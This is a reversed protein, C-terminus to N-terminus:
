RTGKSRLMQLPTRCLLRLDLGLSWGRAYSVDMELAEAFTSHARAAVQWLGTLGAPVLFREFHHPAFSETEYGLCPRPGVLSMDGRLVNVLQPLEDLSTRRLWRGVRTIADDRELKYLGNDNAEAATDMIQRIYERHPADDTDARMTRFKLATFERMGLGLRTQRFFVPGPSDLKTLLSVVAFVPATLMLLAAAGVVDIARKLLRSSPSLRVSPIGVLPLAEVSHMGARPGVLEYLRPVIDVQVDRDRLSRAIAMTREDPESTFAVIVREVDLEAVIRPLEEPEGLVGVHELGPRRAKPSADVFGLLNLGYEPHHLLKRAILQGTDGAGVIVTDQLYTESRRCAARAVVRGLAVAAIALAWFGVLRTAGPRALGTVWASVFFIWAGFTVVHFVGVIDDATSHDTREEDRDYLGYLKALVIWAPLTAVFALMETPGGIEDGAGGGRFLGAAACFAALLGVVDAVLLARRVLWGRRRRKGAARRREVIARAREDVAELGL